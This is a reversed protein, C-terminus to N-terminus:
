CTQTDQELWIWWHVFTLVAKVWSNSITKLETKWEM